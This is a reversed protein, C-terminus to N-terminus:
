GTRELFESIAFSRTKEAAVLWGRLPPIHM